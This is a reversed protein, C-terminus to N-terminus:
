PNQGANQILSVAQEPTDAVDFLTNLYMREFLEKLLPSLGGVAFKGNKKKLQDSVLLVVGIASSNMVRVESMDLVLSRCSKGLLVMMEERFRAAENQYLKKSDIRVVCVDGAKKIQLIPNNM